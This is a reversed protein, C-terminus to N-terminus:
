WSRLFTLDDVEARVNRLDQDAGLETGAVVRDDALLKGALVSLGHVGFHADLEGLLDLGDFVHLAGGLGALAELSDEILGDLGNEEGLWLLLPAAEEQLSTKENKKKGEEDDKQSREKKKYEELCKM